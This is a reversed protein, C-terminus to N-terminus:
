EYLIELAVIYKNVGSGYMTWLTQKWMNICDLLQLKGYGNFLSWIFQIGLAVVLALAESPCAYM